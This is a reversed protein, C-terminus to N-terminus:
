YLQLQPCPHLRILHQENGRDQACSAMKPVASTRKPKPAFAKEKYIASAAFAKHAKTTDKSLSTQQASWEKFTRMYEATNGPEVQTSEVAAAKTRGQATRCAESPCYLVSAGLRQCSGCRYQLFHLADQLQVHPLGTADEGLQVAYIAHWTSDFGTTLQTIDRHVMARMWRNIHFLLVLSWITVHRKHAQIIASDCGGFLGAILRRMMKDYNQLETQMARHARGPFLPSPYTAKANQERMLAVFQDFTVCFLHASIDSTGLSALELNADPNFLKASVKTCYSTSKSTTMGQYVCPVGACNLLLIGESYQHLLMEDLTLESTLAHNARTRQM